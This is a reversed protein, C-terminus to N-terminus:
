RLETLINGSILPQEWRICPLLVTEGKCYATQLPTALALQPNNLPTIPLEKWVPDTPCESDTIKVWRSNQGATFTGLDTFTVTSGKPTTKTDIRTGNRRDYLEYQYIGSGGIGNIAKM